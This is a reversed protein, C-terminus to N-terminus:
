KSAFTPHKEGFKNDDESNQWGHTTLATLVQYTAPCDTFQRLEYMVNSQPISAVSALFPTNTFYM